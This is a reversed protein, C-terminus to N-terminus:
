INCALLRQMLSYLVEGELGEWEDSRWPLHGKPASTNFIVSDYEIWEKKLFGKRWGVRDGFKEWSANHEKPSGCEEWIGKQVSFGFRTNSYKVWLRDITRLAACPFQEIDEARLWGEKQRGMVECMQKATEQDAEEWKGAKLLNRLQSYDINLRAQRRRALEEQGLRQQKLQEAQLLRAQEATQRETQKKARLQDVTERISRAVITFADDPDTWSKIPNAHTPLVNLKSFPVDPHNWDCPSLIIPIVRATGDNHRAIARKLETGYCYKSAIFNRSVLLLIIDATDLKNLIAPEWATGAELQLDHWTSIKNAERLAALHDELTNRMELDKRSYSYFIKIINESVQEELVIRDPKRDIIDARGLVISCKKEDKHFTSLSPVPSRWDRLM